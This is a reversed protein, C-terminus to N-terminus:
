PANLYAHIAAIEEDTLHSFSSRAVDSMLRLERDGQAKGTRLLHQFAALDYSQGMPRLPPVMLGPMDEHEEDMRHCHSCVVTTLYRGEEIQTEVPRSLPADEHHTMAASLPAAGVVAMIRGIPGLTTASPETDPKRELTRLWAIVDALDQDSVASLSDAPMILVSTGDRRIGFRILRVLEEDSYTPAIRSINPAVMQAVFPASFLVRGSEGHCDKCALLAAMRDGREASGGTLRLAVTPRDYTQALRWESAAYLVLFGALLVAVVIAVSLKLARSRALRLLRQTISSM